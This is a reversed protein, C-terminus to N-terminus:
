TIKITMIDTVLPKKPKRVNMVYDITIRGQKLALKDEMRNSRIFNLEIDGDAVLSQSFWGKSFLAFNLYKKESGKIIDEM